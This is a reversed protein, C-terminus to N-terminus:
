GTESDSSNADPVVYEIKIPKGAAGTIAIPSDLDLYKARRDMIKLLRDLAKLDPNQRAVLPWLGKQMDDLRDLELQRVLEADEAMVDRRKALERAVDKYAYLSSWGSPLAGIRGAEAARSVAEAIEAYTMGVKRLRLVMARREATNIYDPHTKAKAM